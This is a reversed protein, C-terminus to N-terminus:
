LILEFLHFDTWGTDEYFMRATRRYIFGKSEYLKRAPLNGDLVDLRIAKMREKEAIQIAFDVMQKALGKGQLAPLVGLAHIVMIQEAEAEIGWQTGAYGENTEHNLIMAAAYQGDQKLMILNGCKLSEMLLADSPYVGKEWAPRYRAGALADILQWYFKQVESFQEPSITIFQQM